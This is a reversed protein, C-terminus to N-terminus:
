GVCGGSVGTVSDCGEGPVEPGAGTVVLGGVAKVVVVLLSPPGENHPRSDHSKNGFM